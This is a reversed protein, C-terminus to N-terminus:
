SLNGKRRFVGFSFFYEGVPSPRLGTCVGLLFFV